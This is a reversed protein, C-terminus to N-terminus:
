LQKCELTRESGVVRVDSRDKDCQGLKAVGHPFRCFGLSEPPPHQGHALLHEWRAVQHDGRSQVAEGVGAGSLVFSGILEFKTLAREGDSLRCETGGM